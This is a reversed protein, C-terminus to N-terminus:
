AVYLKLRTVTKVPWYHALSSDKKAVDDAKGNLNQIAEM